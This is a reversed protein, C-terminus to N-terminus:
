TLNLFRKALTLIHVYVLLNTPAFFDNGDVRQVPDFFKVDEIDM